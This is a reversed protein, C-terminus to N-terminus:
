GLVYYHVTLRLMRLDIDSTGSSGNYANDVGIAVHVRGGRLHSGSMHGLAHWAAHTTVNAFGANVYEGNSDFYAAFAESTSDLTDAYAAASISGYKVAGPLSFYYNGQIISYGDWDACVNDLWVDRGDLDTAYQTCDYNNTTVSTFADGNKTYTVSRSLLRKSSVYVSYHGTSRKNGAADTASYTFTYKGAPVLVGSSRRGNWTISTRGAHRSTSITRVVSSGSYVTLRLTGGEGLSVRPAFDDKYGDRVPYFTTGGGSISGLGPAVTDVIVSRSTANSVPMGNIVRSTTLQVSYRGSPVYNGNTRRGNWVWDHSGDVQKSFSRSYVVSNSGNRVALTVAQSPQDLEYSVTTADKVGDGNPSFTSPAIKTIRPHLTDAIFSSSATPGSCLSGDDNCSQLKLTHSRAAVPRTIRYNFPSKQESTVLQGDLLLHVSGGPFSGSVTFGGLVTAGNLPATISPASNTVNFWVASSPVGCDTPTDCDAATFKHPGNSQGWSAWSVSAAGSSVAVAPLATKDVVFRVLPATSSAALTIEGSSQSPSVPTPTSAPAALAAAPLAFLAAGVAVAAAGALIKPHEM